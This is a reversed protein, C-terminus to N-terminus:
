ASPGDEVAFLDDTEFVARVRDHWAALFRRREEDTAEGAVVRPLLAAAEGLEPVDGIRYTVRVSEDTDTRTLTVAVGADPPEGYSLLHRRGGYGDALGPFGEPGAAGTVYSLLSGVVGFPMEERPGHVEIAVNGRVPLADPYLADLGLRAIRFSGAATPCSHGAATVVDAYSIEFPEGSKRVGLAEAVPDGMRIPEPQDYWQTLTEAVTSDTM